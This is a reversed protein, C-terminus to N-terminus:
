VRLHNRRRKRRPPSPHVRVKVKAARLLRDHLLYGPTVEELIEDEEGEEEIHGVAEHLHPDFTKGVTELRKLGQNKLIESLQKFVLEIGTVLARTKPDECEEAHSVAREFNDLVPLIERLFSEQSYKIFEERERALRKKSNEYDAATRLMKEKLDVLEQHEAKLKEYEQRSVTLNEANEKVNHEHAPKKEEKM